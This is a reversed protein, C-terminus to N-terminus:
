ENAYKKPTRKWEIERTNRPKVLNLKYLDTIRVTHQKKVPVLKKLGIYYEELALTQNPKNYLSWLGNGMVLVEPDPNTELYLNLAQLFM